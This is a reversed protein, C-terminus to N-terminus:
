VFIYLSKEQKTENMRYVCVCLLFLFPNKKAVSSCEVIMDIVWTYLFFMSYVLLYTCDFNGRTYDCNRYASHIAFHLLIVAFLSVLRRAFDLNLYSSLPYKYLLFSLFLGTFSCLRSLTIVIRFHSTQKIHCCSLLHTSPIHLAFFPLFFCLVCM